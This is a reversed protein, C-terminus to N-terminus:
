NANVLEQTAIASHKVAKVLDKLVEKLRQDIEADLQVSGDTQREIQKDVAYVTALIHRAGLEGLIPKLAYEVSLLHAITGGTAIPLVVKGTLSKQPLLDLFAKLVGTYAAKYIPTAIIVGDAKALLDKPQELAPSDYKGFVLDEAPLDRVSLIDVHLGEEQLLKATHELIGYTRSPHSPSGAIALIRAM